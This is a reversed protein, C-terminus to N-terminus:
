VGITAKWFTELQEAADALMSDMVHQYRKLMSLQSWGMVQMVIRQDVKAALLYTAASHRLDHVRYTTPLGARALVKKFNM